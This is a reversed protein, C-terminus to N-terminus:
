ASIVDRECSQLCTMSHVSILYTFLYSLHDMAFSNAVSMNRKCRYNGLEQLPLTIDKLHSHDMM